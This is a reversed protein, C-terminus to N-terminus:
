SARGAVVQAIEEIVQKAQKTVQEDSYRLVFLNHARLEFDKRRDRRIQAPSRHNRPGDLEVAIEEKRWLLDVTWGTVEGNLEPLPLNNTECHEFLEIELQSRANALMPQHSKLAQRLKASGPRGRGLVAEIRAVNLEGNYDARALALRVKSLSATKAYDLMTQTFETVPLGNHIARTLPRRGHVKIGRVSRCKRPTSVHIMYPKSRELDVWWAATIHSLMAHPGAYLVASMLDSEVSKARHGVAYVGPLVRYLYGSKLWGTVTASSIGMAALQLRSVRGFQRAAVQAVRVKGKLPTM